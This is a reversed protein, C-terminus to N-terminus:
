HAAPAVPGAALEEDFTARFVEISHSGVLRRGNVFFTPTGEISLGDAQAMDQEIHAQYEPTDLATRMRALDMGLATAKAELQERKLAQIDTYLADEYEWFHGQANAEAAARHALVADPHISWPRAKFVVHLRDGYEQRLTKITPAVVACAPCQFDSFWVLVLPATAPGSTPDEAHIPVVERTQPPTYPRFLACGTGLLMAAFLLSRTM